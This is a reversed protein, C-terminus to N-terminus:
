CDIQRLEVDASFRCGTRGLRRCFATGEYWHKQIAEKVTKLAYKFFLPYKEPLVEPDRFQFISVYEQMYVGINASEAPFWEPMVSLAVDREAPLLIDLQGPVVIRCLQDMEIWEVKDAVCLDDYIRRLFGPKEPTGMGSLQHLTVEFEFRGRCFSTACGSPITHQKLLM